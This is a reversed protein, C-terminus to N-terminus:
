APHSPSNTHWQSRPVPSVALGDAHAPPFGAPGHLPSLAMLLTFAWFAALTQLMRLCSLTSLGWPGLADRVTELVELLSFPKALWRVV